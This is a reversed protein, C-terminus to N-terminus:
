RVIRDFIAEPVRLLIMPEEEPARRYGIREAGGESDLEGGPHCVHRYVNTIYEAPVSWQVPDIRRAEWGGETPTIIAPLRTSCFIHQDGEYDGWEIAVGRSSQPPEVGEHESGGERAKIRILTGESTRRVIQASQIDFWSCGGMYCRGIRPGSTIAAAANSDAGAPSAPSAPSRDGPAASSAAPASAAANSGNAEGAGNTTAGRNCGAVLALAAMTMLAAKDKVDKGGM